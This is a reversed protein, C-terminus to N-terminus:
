RDIRWVKVSDISQKAKVTVPIIEVVQFVELEVPCPFKCKEPFKVGEAAIQNCGAAGSWYWLRRAETLRLTDGEKHKLYGVHINAQATKVLVCPLDNKFAQDEMPNATTTEPKM